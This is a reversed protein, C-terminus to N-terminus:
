VKREKSVFLPYKSESPKREMTSPNIDFCETERKYVLKGKEIQFKCKLKFAVPKFKGEPDLLDRYLMQEDTWSLENNELKMDYIGSVISDSPVSDSLLSSAVFTLTGTANGTSKRAAISYRFLTSSYAERIVNGTGAEVIKERSVVFMDMKFRVKSFYMNSFSIQDSYIARFKKNELSYSIEDTYLTKGNVNKRLFDIIEEM